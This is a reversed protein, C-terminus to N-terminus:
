SKGQAIKGAHIAKVNTIFVQWDDLPVKSQLQVQVPMQFGTVYANVKVRIVPSQKVLSETRVLEDPSIPFFDQAFNSRNPYLSIPALHWTERGVIVDAGSVISIVLNIRDILLELPTRNEIRLNTRIGPQGLETTAEQVISDIFVDLHPYQGQRSFIYQQIASRCVSSWNTEPFQTDMQAKLDDPISITLNAM